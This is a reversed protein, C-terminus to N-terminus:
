QGPNSKIKNRNGIRASLFGIFAILVVGANFIMSWFVSYNKAITGIFIILVSLMITNILSQISLTTARHSSPVVENILSTMYIGHSGFCFSLLMILPLILILRGFAFVLSIMFTVALYFALIKNLSIKKALITYSMSGIFSAINVGLYVFILYVVPLGALDLVPQYYNYIVDSAASMLSFVIVILWIKENALLFKLGEKIQGFHTGSSKHFEPEKVLSLVFISVFGTIVSLLFPLKHDYAYALVGGVSIVARGLFYIGQIRSKIRDYEKERGLNLLTDYVIASETGSSFSNSLGFFIVAALFYIFSNGALFFIQAIVTFLTGIMLINKRSYRDAWVSSPIEFIVQTFFLASVLIGIEELNLGISLFYLIWVPGAFWMAEFFSALYLKPINSPYSLKFFEFM